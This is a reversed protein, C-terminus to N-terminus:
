SFEPFRKADVNRKITELDTKTRTMDGIFHKIKAIDEETATEDAILYYAPYKKENFLKDFRKCTLFLDEEDKFAILTIKAKGFSVVIPM